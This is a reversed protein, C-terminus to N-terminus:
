HTERNFKTLFEYIRVANISNCTSNALLAQAIRRIDHNYWGETQSFDKRNIHSLFSEAITAHSEEKNFKSAEIISTRIDQNGMWDETYKKDFGWNFAIDIILKYYDEDELIAIKVLLSILQVTAYILEVRDTHILDEFRARVSLRQGIPKDHYSEYSLQHLAYIIEHLRGETLLESLPVDTRTVKIMEEIFEQTDALRRERDDQICKLILTDVAPPIAENSDSLAEYHTFSPLTGSLTEYLTIGLSFIDSRCDLDRGERQEPSMYQMTGVTYGERTITTLEEKTYVIGFDVLTAIRRDDSIIINDPKIDRHIIGSKHALQLASAIHIFWEKINEISPTPESEIIKRLTPGDIFEFLIIMEGEEIKIDYIAPINPHTLKALVKAERKFRKKAEDDDLLKLVKVAVTRDLEKDKYKYIKGFAGEGTKEDILEFRKELSSM